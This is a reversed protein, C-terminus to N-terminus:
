EFSRNKIHDLIEQVLTHNDTCFEYFEGFTLICDYGAQWHRNQRTLFEWELDDLLADEETDYIIGSAGEYKIKM